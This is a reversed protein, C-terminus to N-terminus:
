FSAGVRVLEWQVDVSRSSSGTSGSRSAASPHPPLATTVEPPTQPGRSSWSGGVRLAAPVGMGPRLAGRDLPPRPLGGRQTAPRVGQPGHPAAEAPRRPRLHAARPRPGRLAGHRPEEPSAQGPNRRCRRRPTSRQTITRKPVPHLAFRYWRASVGVGGNSAVPIGGRCRGCIGGGRPMAGASRERRWANWRSLSADPM